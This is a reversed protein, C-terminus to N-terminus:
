RVTELFLDRGLISDFAKDLGNKLAEINAPQWKSCHRERLFTTKDQRNDFRGIPIQYIGDITDISITGKINSSNMLYDIDDCGYDTYMVSLPVSHRLISGPDNPDRRAENKRRSEDPTTVM